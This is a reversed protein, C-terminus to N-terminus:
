LTAAVELDIPGMGHEVPYMTATTRQTSKSANSIVNHPM